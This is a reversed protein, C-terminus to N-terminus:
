LLLNFSYVGCFYELSMSVRHVLKIIYLKVFYSLNKFYRLPGKKRFKLAFHSEKKLIHRWKTNKDILTM